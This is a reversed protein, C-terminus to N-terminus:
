SWIQSVFFFKLLCTYPTGCVTEVYEGVIRMDNFELCFQQWTLSYYYFWVLYIAKWINMESLQHVVKLSWFWCNKAGCRCRQKIAFRESEVVIVGLTFLHKLDWYIITAFLLNIIMFVFLELDKEKIKLTYRLGTSRSQTCDCDQTQRCATLWM